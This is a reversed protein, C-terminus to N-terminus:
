WVILIAIIPNIYSFSGCEFLFMKCLAFLANMVVCDEHMWKSRTPLTCQVWTPNLQDEIFDNFYYGFCVPCHYSSIRSIPVAPRM